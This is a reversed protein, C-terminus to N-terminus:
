KVSVVEFCAAALSANKGDYFNSEFARIVNYAEWQGKSLLIARAYGLVSYRITEPEGKLNKLIGAVKNWSSKQLLARCLEIAESEEAVREEIAKTQESSKLNAIKDLLVLAMRASGQSADILDEKVPDALSIKEKKAVHEILGWLEDHTLLRVPMETCRTLIPKILKQPDTTALFFYVHEPCDELMKLMANQGDKTVLAVEDLMWIRCPGGAPSLHMLRQIDRVSDIGRYSASNLEKYDLDHCDLEEKLIRVLSTKGCGSPGSFLISHPLSANAIMNRLSSVTTECGVMQDLTTPRYRHYLGM